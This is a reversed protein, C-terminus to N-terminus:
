GVAFVCEAIVLVSPGALDLDDRGLGESRLAVERQRVRGAHGLGAKLYLGIRVVGVGIGGLSVENGDDGVTTCNQPQPVDARCSGLGHHLALADEELPERVDVDEVQLQVGIVRIFEDATNPKQFGGEAADIQLIDLRGLAEVDFRPEALLHVDRDEVIVLM